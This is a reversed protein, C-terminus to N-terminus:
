VTIEVPVSPACRLGHLPSIQHITNKPVGTPHRIQNGEVWSARGHTEVHPRKEPMSASELASSKEGRRNGKEALSAM